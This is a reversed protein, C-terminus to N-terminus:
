RDARIQWPESRKMGESARAGLGAPAPDPAYGADLAQKMFTRLAQIADRPIAPVKLQSGGGQNHEAITRHFQNLTEAVANFGDRARFLTAEDVTVVRDRREPAPVPGASRVYRALLEPAEAFTMVLVQFERPPLLGLRETVARSVKRRREESHVLFLLRPELEDPFASRYWSAYGDASRTTFYQRYRGLKAIIAGTKDPRATAISQSGTEAEVFLRRQRAPVTMIADPKLVAALRSRTPSHYVDFSLSEDDECLWRFPLDCHPAEPGTRLLAVLGALVENLVLTHELFRAGIDSAAPPRLWPVQKSAISRGYPALAWVPVPLGDRRRYTLRRLCPGEGPQGGPV